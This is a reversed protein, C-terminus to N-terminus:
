EPDDKNWRLGRIFTPWGSYAERIADCSPDDCTVDGDALPRYGAGHCWGCAYPAIAGLLREAAELRDLLAQLLRPAAAILELKRLPGEFPTLGPIMAKAWLPDLYDKVLDVDVIQAWALLRRAEAIPDETTM